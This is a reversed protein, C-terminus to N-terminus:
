LGLNLFMSAITGCAGGLVYLAKRIKSNGIVVNVGFVFCCGIGLSSLFAYIYQGNAVHLIQSSILGVQIFGVLFPLFVKM